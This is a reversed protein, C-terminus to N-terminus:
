RPIPRLKGVGEIGLEVPRDNFDFRAEGLFGEELILQQPRPDGGIFDIDLLAILVLSEAAPERDITPKTMVEHGADLVLELKDIEEIDAGVKVLLAREKAPVVAIGVQEAGKSHLELGEPDVIDQLRVIAGDELAAVPDCCLADAAIEGEVLHQQSGPGIPADGLPQLEGTTDLTPQNNGKTGM